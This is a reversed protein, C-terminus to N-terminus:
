EMVQERIEETMLDRQYVDTLIGFYQIETGAEFPEDKVTMREDTIVRLKDGYTGTKRLQGEEDYFDFVFELVDGTEFQELGKKMFFHEKENEMSYGTVRGEIEGETDENVPDWEIHLIVNDVGNLKARVTGRYITGEETVLPEEAEYCVVYGNIRAWIGDMSIIPHGDADADSFHEQGIYMMGDETVLYAAIKCDLITDWTKDPLEPLYGGATETVPIDVFLDTTDYDEFGKIYWAEDTYDESTLIGWFSDTDNQAMRQSAMISCFNNFFRREKNYKVAKLQKYEDSYLSLSSYPFDISLGNIGEASDINRYVVCAKATEAIKDLEEDKMVQQKYDAKKLSTLFNVMDVQEEDFFQYAKSRAASMNAFVAHNDAIEATAKKYLGTLQSYVPKILTLDVLSLTGERNPEGNHTARNSQDYTNVMIRGLEETSLAPDAALSGFGLTYYWGTGPETEQSALYYDAFPELANAYEVNQMLCADFGILDFKVDSAKIAKIIESATMTDQGDERENLDDVGYGSAFGGGHDWLVLMYRDAPYNEKTWKIFETLNKPDSMCTSPDLTEATEINGGSILYRGVSEDEIGKTFWRDSGGAQMVFDLGDGKGTAEKMQAINISAFGRGDELNSGIVYEMVVVKKDGSHDPFFYDRTRQGEVIKAYDAGLTDERSIIEDTETVSSLKNMTDRMMYEAVPRLPRVLLTIFFCVVILAALEVVSLGAFCARRLNNATRSRKKEPRFERPGLYKSKGFALIPLFLVPMLIMGLAFIFGKGFQKSLRTYLRMMFVGYVILAVFSVIIGYESSSGIILSTVFLALTIIAPRWFVRMKRFLDQSMAWEGMFPIVGLSSSKGMKRLIRMYSLIQILLPIGWVVPDRLIYLVLM